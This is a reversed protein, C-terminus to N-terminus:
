RHNYGRSSFGDLVKRGRPGLGIGGMVLRNSPAVSGNKGLSSAPIIAPIGITAVATTKLFNRRTTKTNM